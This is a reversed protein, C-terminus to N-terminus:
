KNLTSPPPTSHTVTYVALAAATLIAAITSLRLLGPWYKLAARM